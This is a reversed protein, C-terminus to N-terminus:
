LGLRWSSGEVGDLIEVGITSLEKRLLDSRAFDKAARAENRERVKADIMAADLGKTALRQARTRAFFAASDAALLGLPRSAAEMAALALKAM